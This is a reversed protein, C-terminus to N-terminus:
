SHHGLLKGQQHFGDHGINLLYGASATDGLTTVTPPQWRKKATTAHQGM